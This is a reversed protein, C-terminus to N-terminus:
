KRQAIKLNKSDIIVTVILKLGRWCQLISANIGKDLPSESKAIFYKSGLLRIPRLVGSNDRGGLLTWSQKQINFVIHAIQGIVPKNWKYLASVVWGHKWFHCFKVKILLQNFNWQICIYTVKKSMYGKM